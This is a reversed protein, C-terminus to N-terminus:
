CINRSPSETSGSSRDSAGRSRCGQIAGLCIVPGAGCDEVLARGKGDAEEDINCSTNDPDREDRGEVGPKKCAEGREDGDELPEGSM